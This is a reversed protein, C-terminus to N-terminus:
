GFSTVCYLESNKNNYSYTPFTYPYEDASMRIHVHAFYCM